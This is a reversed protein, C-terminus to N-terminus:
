NDDHGERTVEDTIALNQQSTNLEVYNCIAHDTQEECAKPELRFRTTKCKSNLDMWEMM